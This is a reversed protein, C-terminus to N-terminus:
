GDASGGVEEYLRPGRESSNPRSGQRGARPSPAGYNPSESRPSTPLLPPLKPVPPLEGRAIEAQRWVRRVTALLQQQRELLQELSVSAPM